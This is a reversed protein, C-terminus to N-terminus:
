ATRRMDFLLMQGPWARRKGRGCPMTLVLARQPLSWGDRHRQRREAEYVRHAETCFQCRCGAVYRSRHGHQAVRRAPLGLGRALMTLEAPTMGGYVGEVVGLPLGAMGWTRCDALVPCSDACIRKAEPGREPDHWPDHAGDAKDLCAADASWDPPRLLLSM